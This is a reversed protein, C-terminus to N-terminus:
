VEVRMEQALVADTAKRRKDTIVAYIMTSQINRHGLLSRVDVIDLNADLAHVACTHRLCHVSMDAIKRIYKNFLKQIMSRSLGGRLGTFLSDGSRRVNFYEKVARKVDPYLTHQRSIGRKVRRIYILNNEMDVDEFRLLTAEAVRLGYRYMILFLAKDRKDKIRGFFKKIQDKTLYKIEEVIKYETSM